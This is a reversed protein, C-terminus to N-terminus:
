KSAVQGTYLELDSEKVRYERGIKIAKIKGTACFRRVTQINLKLAEALQKITYLKEM